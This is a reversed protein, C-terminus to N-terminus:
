QIDGKPENTDGSGPQQTDPKQGGGSGPNDGQFLRAIEKSAEGLIKLDVGVGITAMWALGENSAFSPANQGEPVPVIANPQVYAPVRMSRVSIGSSVFVDQAGRPSFVARLNWQKLFASETGQLWTPGLGVGWWSRTPRVLLLPSFSVQHGMGERARLQFFRDPGGVTSIEEFQYGGAPQDGLMGNFGMELGLSVLPFKGQTEFQLAAVISGDETKDECSGTGRCVRAEYRTAEELPFGEIVKSTYRSIPPANRHPPAGGMFRRFAAAYRDLTDAGLPTGSQLHLKIAEALDKLHNLSSPERPVKSLRQRIEKAADRMVGEKALPAVPRASSKISVGIGQAALALVSALVKGVESAEQQVKEGKLLAARDGFRVMETATVEDRMPKDSANEELVQDRQLDYAFVLPKEGAELKESARARGLNAPLLLARFGKEQALFEGEQLSWPVYQRGPPQHTLAVDRLSAELMGLARRAEHARLKPSAIGDLTGESSVFSCIREQTLRPSRALAEVDEKLRALAVEVGSAAAKGFETTKTLAERREEDFATFDEALSQAGSRTRLRQAWQEYTIVELLAQAQQQLAKVAQDQRTKLAAGPVEAWVRMVLTPDSDQAEPIQYAVNPTALFCRAELPHQRVRRLQVVIRAGWGAPQDFCWTGEQSAPAYSVSGDPRIRLRAQLCNGPTASGEESLAFPPAAPTGQCFAQLFAETASKLKDPEGEFPLAAADALLGGWMGPDNLAAQVDEKLDQLPPEGETVPALADACPTPAPVPGFPLFFPGAIAPMLATTVILCACCQVAARLRFFGNRPSHSFAPHSPM